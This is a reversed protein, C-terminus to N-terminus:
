INIEIKKNLLIVYACVCLMKVTNPMATHWPFCDKVWDCASLLGKKDRVAVSLEASVYAQVSAPVM